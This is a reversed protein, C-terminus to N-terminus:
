ECSMISNLQGSLATAVALHFLSPCLGFPFPKPLSVNFTIFFISASVVWLLVTFQSVLWSRGIALTTKIDENLISQCLWTYRPKPRFM